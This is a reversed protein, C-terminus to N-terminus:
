PPSCNNTYQTLTQTVNAYYNARYSSSGRGDPDTVSTRASNWTEDIQNTGTGEPYWGLNYFHKWFDGQNASYTDSNGENHNDFADWFYRMASLPWREELTGCYPYSSAELDANAYPVGTSDDYCTITTTYCTTPTDANDAWFTVSGYHTAWAEEFAGSGWEPNDPQWGVGGWSFNLGYVTGSSDIMQWPHTVYSAIHGAEHMARAQPAFGADADLHVEKTPGWSCSSDCSDQGYPLYSSIVDAFGRM